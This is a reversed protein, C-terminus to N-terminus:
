KQRDMALDRSCQARGFNSSIDKSWVTNSSASERLHREIFQRCGVRRLSQRGRVQQPTQSVVASNASCSTLASAAKRAPLIGWSRGVAQEQSDVLLGTSPRQYTTPETGTRRAKKWRSGEGASRALTIRSVRATEREAVADALCPILLPADHWRAGDIRRPRLVRGGARLSAAPSGRADRIIGSRGAAALYVSFGIADREDAASATAPVGRSPSLARPRESRAGSARSVAGAKKSCEAM